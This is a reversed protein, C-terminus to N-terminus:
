NLRKGRSVWKIVMDCICVKIFLLFVVDNILSLKEFKKSTDGHELNRHRLFTHRKTSEEPHSSVRLSSSIEKRMRILYKTIMMFHNM